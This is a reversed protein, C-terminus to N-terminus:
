MPRPSTYEGAMPRLVLYNAAQFFACRVALRKRLSTIILFLVSANPRIFDLSQSILPDSLLELLSLSITGLM